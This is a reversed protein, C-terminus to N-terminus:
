KNADDDVFAEVKYRASGDRELTRKTILGAAGAGYLVVRVEDKGSGKARLYLLKVAIRSSILLMATAMFDIIIVTRPLFYIGDILYYRVASFVGFLASGALVTLFIRRADETSTHKVLGQHIRAAALSGARVLLFIPLMPWLLAYEYEPVQFNFRLQYAAMLALVCLVSDIVLIMWRPLYRPAAM